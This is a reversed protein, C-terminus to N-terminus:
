LTASLLTGAFFEGNKKQKKVADHCDRNWWPNSYRLMKGSTRPIPLMAAQIVANTVAEVADDISMDEVMNETLEASSSFLEWDARALIFWLPRWM